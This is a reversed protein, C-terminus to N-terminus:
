FVVQGDFAVTVVKPTVTKFYIEWKLEIEMSATLVVKRLDKLSWLSSYRLKLM